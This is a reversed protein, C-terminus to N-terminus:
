GFIGAGYHAINYINGRGLAYIMDETWWQEKWQQPCHGEYYCEGTHEDDTIKYKSGRAMATLNSNYIDRANVVYDNRDCALHESFHDVIASGVTNIGLGVLIKVAIGYPVSIGGIIATILNVVSGSWNNVTYTTHYTRTASYFLDAGYRDTQLSGSDQWDYYISGFYTGLSSAALSSNLIKISSDPVNSNNGNSAKVIDTARYQTKFSGGPTSIKYNGSNGAYATVHM